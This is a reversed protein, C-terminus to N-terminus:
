RTMVEKETFVVEEKGMLKEQVKEIVLDLHGNNAVFDLDDGPVTLIPCLTFDKIWKENLVNLQELYAPDIQEEYDRGRLM